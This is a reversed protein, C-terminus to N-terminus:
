STKKKLEKIKQRCKALEEKLHDREKYVKIINILEENQSELLAYYKVEITNYEKSSIKIVRKM